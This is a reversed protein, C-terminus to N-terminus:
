AVIFLHNMWFFYSETMVTHKRKRRHLVFSSVKFLTPLWVTKAGVSKCLIKNDMINLDIPTSFMWFIKKLFLLHCFQWKQTSWGKFYPLSKTCACLQTLIMMAYLVIIANISKNFWKTYLRVLKCLSTCTWRVVYLFIPLLDLPSYCPDNECKWFPLSNNHEPTYIHSVMAFTIKANSNAGFALGFIWYQM